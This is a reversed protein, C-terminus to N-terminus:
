FFRAGFLRIFILGIALAGVSSGVLWAQLRRQELAAGRSLINPITALIPLNVYHNVEETRKFSTDLAELVFALGFGGLLGGLLGVMVFVPRNPRVPKVPFSAPDVVQFQEGKQKREMNESLESDLGKRLLDQYKSLTITYTRSVKSLEIARLPTNNVRAQYTAIEDRLSKNENELSRITSDLASVQQKIMQQMPNIATTAPKSNADKSLDSEKIKAADNELTKIEERLRMVDPHKDSYRVLLAELQKKRIQVEQSPPRLQDSNPEATVPLNDSEVMQKEVAVKRDQLSALRELNSRLQSRLQDLTRLNTDVQDPLEFRNEIKFKNVETEQQELEKRLREAEANIFSTTGLAQQERVQLNEEIFLSALRSTVQMAKEPSGSEFSLGFADSKRVDIRIGKRLQEVRDEMTIGAGGPYLNFENVIKELRTRSMIQQTIANIRQNIDTTVTSRVYSTPIRQRTMLILTSSRYVNPINYALYFALTAVVVFVAIILGKRRYFGELIKSIDFDAFTNM